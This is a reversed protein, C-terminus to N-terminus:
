LNKLYFKCFLYIYRINTAFHSLLYSACLASLITISGGQKAYDLLALTDNHKFALLALTGNSYLKVFKFYHALCYRLVYSVVQMVKLRGNLTRTSRYPKSPSKETKGLM